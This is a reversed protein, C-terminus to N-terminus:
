FGAKKLATKLGEEDFGVASWLVKGDPGVLYNTPYAMVGYQEAVDYSKAGKVKAMGIRFTFNNETVYKQIVDKEDTGNMAIM